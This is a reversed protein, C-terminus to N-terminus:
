RTDDNSNDDESDQLDGSDDIPESIAELNKNMQKMHALLTSFMTAANPEQKPAHRTAEGDVAM